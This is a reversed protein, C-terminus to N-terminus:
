ERYYRRIDLIERVWPCETAWRDRDRIGIARQADQWTPLGTGDIGCANVLRDVFWERLISGPESCFTGVLLPWSYARANEEKPQSSSAMQSPPESPSSVPSDALINKLQECLSQQTRTLPAVTRLFLNSYILGTLNAAKSLQHNFTSPQDKAHIKSLLARDSDLLAEGFQVREQASMTDVPTTRTQAQLEAVKQLTPLNSLSIDCPQRVRLDEAESNNATDM